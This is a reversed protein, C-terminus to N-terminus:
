EKCLQDLSVIDFGKNRLITIMHPLAEVTNKRNADAKINRGDHLLIISGDKAKKTSIDTITESTPNQWDRPYCDMDWLILEYGRNKIIDESVINYEGYPPRFYSPKIDLISKFIEESKEIELIIEEKTLSNLHPHSYTHNGIAHGSDRVKVAIDPLREINKGPFFFTAKISHQALIDLIQLTYDGNPGDDFTIACQKM